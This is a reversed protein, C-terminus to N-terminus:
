IKCHNRGNSVTHTESESLSVLGKNRRITESSKLRLKRRNMQSALEIIKDLGEKKLHEGKNMMAIIESFIRFDNQKSTQLPNNLFFKVVDDLPKMGRIRLEKRDGHNVVVKGNGFFERLRELLKEDKEHQVVRFEPLVQYKLTMKPQSNIAVHFCGEGDVFGVVYNNNLREQQNDASSVNEGLSMM